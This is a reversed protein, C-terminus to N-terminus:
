KHQRKCNRHSMIIVPVSVTFGPTQAALKDQYQEWVKHETGYVRSAGLELYAKLFAEKDDPAAMLPGGLKRAINGGTGLLTKDPLNLLTDM